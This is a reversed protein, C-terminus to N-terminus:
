LVKAYFLTGGMDDAQIAQAFGARGYIRRARTNNEQVELTVKCCGRERAHQEVAELLQQGIGRGRYAPVVSLDHINLLPLAKFTSFGWFCTALGVAVGEVYAMVIFTTPLTRLGPILRAQVAESLPAGGGVEDLSFAVTLALVDRQHDPRSLDAEVIDARAHM